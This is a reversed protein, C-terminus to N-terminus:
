TAPLPGVLPALLRVHFRKPLLLIRRMEVDAPSASMQCM